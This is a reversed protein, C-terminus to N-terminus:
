DSLSYNATLTNGSVLSPPTGFLATSFLTGTTGGKTNDSTVFLGKITVTANISYSVSDSITRAAAAAFNLQQRVSESYDENEIWGTHSAMTDANAVGTFSANDILGAHWPALTVTPGDIDTLRDLAHHIGEDVIGNDFDVCWLPDRGFRQHAASEWASVKTWRGKFLGRQAVGHQQHRLARRLVEPDFDNNIFSTNM